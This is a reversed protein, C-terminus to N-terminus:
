ETRVKQESSRILKVAWCRDEDTFEYGCKDCYKADNPCIHYCMNPCIM